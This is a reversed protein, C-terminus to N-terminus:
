KPGGEEQNLKHRVVSLAWKGVQERSDGIIASRWKNDLGEEWYGRSLRNLTDIVREHAATRAMEALEIEHKEDEDLKGGARLKELRKQDVESLKAVMEAYPGLTAKLEDLARTLSPYEQATKELDNFLDSAPREKVVAREEEAKRNWSEQLFHSRM